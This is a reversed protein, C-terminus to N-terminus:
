NSDNIPELYSHSNDECVMLKYKLIVDDDLPEYNIRHDEGTTNINIKTILPRNDNSNKIIINHKRLIRDITNFCYLFLKICM